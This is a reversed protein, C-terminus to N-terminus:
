DQKVEIEETGEKIRLKMKEERRENWLNFSIMCQLIIEKRWYRLMLFIIVVYTTFYDRKGLKTGCGTGYGTGFLVLM